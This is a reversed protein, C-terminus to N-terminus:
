HERGVLSLYFEEIRHINPHVDFEKVSEIGNGEFANLSGMNNQYLRELAELWSAEDQCLIGDVGQTITDKYPGVASAIVPYGTAWMQLIRLNSKGLNFKIDALPAVSVDADIEALKFPYEAFNDIWPLNELQGVPIDTTALNQGFMVIRVNPHRSAFAGLAPIAVALDGSHSPSGAWVVKFLGDKRTKPAKPWSSLEIMNPIVEIRECDKRYHDALWPTSVQVADALNMMKRISEQREPIGMSAYSSHWSELCDFADDIEYVMKKGAEKLAKAFQYAGPSHDIQFVVVDYDLAGRTYKGTTVHSMCRSGQGLAFSPMMCRYWASAVSITSYFLVRVANPRFLEESLFQQAMLVSQVCAGMSIQTPMKEKVRTGVRVCLHYDEKALHIADDEFRVIVEAGALETRAGLVLKAIVEPLLLSKLAPELPKVPAETESM